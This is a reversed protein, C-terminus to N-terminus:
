ALRRCITLEGFHSISFRDKCAQHFIDSSKGYSTDDHLEIVIADVLDIWEVFNHSFVVAEAGEIDMKLISIRERKSIKLLSSIDVAQITPVEGPNCERVQFSWERGDRYLDKSVALGTPHSWIAANLMLARDQYAALNRELMPFNTPSPEVAVLHCNPFRTLFYASSYGVNAGCDIVLDVDGLQDLRSYERYVFIQNFAIIDSSNARCLLPHDAERSRLFYPHQLNLLLCRLRQLIYYLAPITGLSKFLLFLYRVSQKLM